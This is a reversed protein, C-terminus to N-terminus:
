CLLTTMGSLTSASSNSAVFFQMSSSGQRKQAFRDAFPLECHRHHFAEGIIQKGTGVVEWEYRTSEAVPRGPLSQDVSVETEPPPFM